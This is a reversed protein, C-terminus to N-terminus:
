VGYAPSAPSREWGPTPPAPPRDTAPGSRDALLKAVSETLHELSFPIRLSQVRNPPRVKTDGQNGLYLMKLDPQALQLKRVLNSDTRDLLAGDAVLVDIHVRRALELAEPPQSTVLVYHRANRLAQDVLELVAAHEAVVVITAHHEALDHVADRFMAHSHPESM